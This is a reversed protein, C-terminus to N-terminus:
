KGKHAFYIRYPKLGFRSDGKQAEKDYDFNASGMYEQANEKAWKTAKFLADGYEAKPLRKDLWLWTFTSSKKGDLRVGDMMSAIGVNRSNKFLLVSKVKGSKVGALYRNLEKRYAPGKQKRKSASDKCLTARTVSLAENTNKPPRAVITSSKMEKGVPTLDSTKAGFMYRIVYDNKLIHKVCGGAPAFPEFNFSLMAVGKPWNVAAVLEDTVNSFDGANYMIIRDNHLMKELFKM